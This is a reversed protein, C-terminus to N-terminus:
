VPILKLEKSHDKEKRYLIMLRDYVKEALPDKQIAEEYEKIALSIDERQEAKNAEKIPKKLSVIKAM